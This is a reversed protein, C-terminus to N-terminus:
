AIKLRGRVYTNIPLKTPDPQLFVVPVEKVNAFWTFYEERGIEPYVVLPSKSAKAIAIAERVDERKLTMLVVPPSNCEEILYKIVSSAVVDVDTYHQYEVRYHVGAIPCKNRCLDGDCLVKRAPANLVTDPAKSLGKPPPARCDKALREVWESIDAPSMKRKAATGVIDVNPCKVGHLSVLREVLLRLGATDLYPVEVLVGRGRRKFEPLIEDPELNTTVAVFVRYRQMYIESLEKKAVTQVNKTVEGEGTGSAGAWKAILVDGEDFVLVYPQSLKARHFFRQLNKESEGVWKSLFDAPSIVDYPVGFKAPIVLSALTTKGSGPPGALIYMPTARGRGELVTEAGDVVWRYIELPWVFVYRGAGDEAYVVAYGREEEEKIRAVYHVETFRSAFCAVASGHPTVLRRVGNVGVVVPGYGPPKAGVELVVKKCIM